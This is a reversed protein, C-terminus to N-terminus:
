SLPAIWIRSGQREAIKLNVLLAGVYSATATRTLNVQLWEGLSGSPPDTRSTGVSVMRGGFERQIRQIFERSVHVVQPSGGFRIFYGQADDQRFQFTSGGAWTDMQRWEGTPRAPVESPQRSVPARRRQAPRVVPAPQIGTSGSGEDSDDEDAPEGEGLSIGHSFLAMDVIRGFAGQRILWDLDPHQALAAGVEPWEARILESSWAWLRHLREADGGRSPLLQQTGAWGTLEGRLGARVRSDPVPGIGTLLMLAKAPYVIGRAPPEFFRTALVKLVEIAEASWNRPWRGGAADRRRARLSVLPARFGNDKLADAIQQVSATRPAARSGAGWARLVAEIARAAAMAEAHTPPSAGDLFATAEWVEQFDCVYSSQLNAFRLANELM